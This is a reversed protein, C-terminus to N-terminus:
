CRHAVISRKSHHRAANEAALERMAGDCGGDVDIDGGDNDSVTGVRLRGHGHLPTHAGVDIEHREQARLM